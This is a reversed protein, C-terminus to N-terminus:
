NWNQGPIFTRKWDRIVLLDQAISCNPLHGKTPVDQLCSCCSGPPEFNEVELHKLTTELRLVLSIAEDWIPMDAGLRVLVAELRHVLSIPDNRGPM